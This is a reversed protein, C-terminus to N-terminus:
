RGTPHNFVSSPRDWSRNHRMQGPPCPLARQHPAVRQRPQRPPIPQQPQGGFQRHIGFSVNFDHTHGDSHFIGNSYRLQFTAKLNNNLQRSYKLGVLVGRRAVFQTYGRGRDGYMFDDNNPNRSIFENRSLFVSQGTFIGATLELRAVSSSFVTAQLEVVAFGESDSDAVFGLIPLPFDYEILALIRFNRHVNLYTGIGLPFTISQYSGESRFVRERLDIHEWRSDYYTRRHSYEQRFPVARISARVFPEFWTRNPFSIKYNITASFIANPTHRYDVSPNPTEIITQSKANEFSVAVLMVAIISIIIIKKM